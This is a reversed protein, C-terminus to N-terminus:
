YGRHSPNPHNTYFNESSLCSHLCAQRASLCLLAGDVWYSLSLFCILLCLIAFCQLLIFVARVDIQNKERMQWCLQSTASALQRWNASEVSKPAAVSTAVTKAARPRWGPMRPLPRWKPRAANMRVVERQRSSACEGNHLERMMLVSQLIQAMNETDLINSPPLSDWSTLSFASRNGALM